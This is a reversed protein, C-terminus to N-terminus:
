KIGKMIMFDKYLYDERLIHNFVWQVVKVLLDELFQKQNQDVEDLSISKLYDIFEDHVRKHNDAQEYGIEKFLNEENSFHYVTYDKLQGIVNVIEDYNDDGENHEEILKYIRNGIELLKKHQNDISEIGLELEEKWAFM